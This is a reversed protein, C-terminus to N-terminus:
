NNKDFLKQLCNKFDPINKTELSFGSAPIHGGYTKLLHSCAILFDLSNVGEPTRVSGRTLKGKTAIIFTPKQFKDCVRGSIAGTLVFPIETGGEFIFRSNDISVKKIIQNVLLKILEKRQNNGKILFSLMKKAKNKNKENLFLYSKTLHGKMETIQLISTLKKITEELLYDKLPFKEFFVQFAPRFSFSISNLGSETLVKNEKIQPVKDAITGLAVLELFNDKVRKSLGEGLIEQALRFSVGCAALFDFSKDGKQKPNVVIQSPIIKDIIEHHDVVIIKLGYEKIREIEKIGGAGCDSIILLAPSYKKFFLLAKQNLGYGEKWLDPFYCSKINGGITRVTEELIILSTVGDLDADSFFLINKKEKVAKKIKQSAKKLNKITM